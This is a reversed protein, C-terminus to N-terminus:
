GGLLDKRRTVTGFAGRQAADGSACSGRTGGRLLFSQIHRDARTPSAPLTTRWLFDHELEEASPQKFSSVDCGQPNIGSMVHRIAGDKGAADMGQFILLLAHRGSAYFLRQLKSLSDVHEELLAQYNRKSKYFPKVATPCETLNVKKGPMVRFEKSEIEM